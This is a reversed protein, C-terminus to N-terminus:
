IIPFSRGAPSILGFQVYRLPMQIAALEKELKNVKEELMAPPMMVRVVGMRYKEVVELIYKSLPMGSAEAAKKWQQM